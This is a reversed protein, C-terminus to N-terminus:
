LESLAGVAELGAIVTTVEAQELIAAARRLPHGPNLAVHAAGAGFVALSGAYCTLSRSAFVAVLQSSGRSTSVARAISGAIAGLEAYTWRNRGIELAVADPHRALASCFGEAPSPAALPTCPRELPM